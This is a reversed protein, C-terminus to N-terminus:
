VLNKWSLASMPHLIADEVFWTGEDLVDGAGAISRLERFTEKGIWGWVVGHAFALKGNPAYMLRTKVLALVDFNRRDYDDAKKAPWILYHSHMGTQKIDVLTRGLRVDWHAGGISRIADIDMEAHLAFICEAIKSNCLLVPNSEANRMSFRNRLRSSFVARRGWSQCRELLDDPVDILTLDPKM